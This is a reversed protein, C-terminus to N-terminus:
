CQRIYNYYNMFKSITFYNDTNKGDSQKMFVGTTSKNCGAGFLIYDIGHRKSLTAHERVTILDEVVEIKKDNWINEKFYNSNNKYKGGLFFIISGDEARGLTNELVPFRKDTYGSVDLSENMYGTPIQFIMKRLGLNNGFVKIFYIYNLWLDNNFFSDLNGQILGGDLIYKDFAIYTPSYDLVGCDKYFSSIRLASERLYKIGKKFGRIRTTNM